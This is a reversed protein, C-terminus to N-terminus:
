QEVRADEDDCIELLRRVNIHPNLIRKGEYTFHERAEHEEGTLAAKFATLVLESETMHESLYWKRTPITVPEGTKVCPAKWLWQLYPANNRSTDISARLTWGEKYKVNSLVVTMELPTM